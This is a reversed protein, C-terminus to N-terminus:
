KNRDIIRQVARLARDTATFAKWISSLAILFDEGNRSVSGELADGGGIEDVLNALQYYEGELYEEREKLNNMLEEKSKM